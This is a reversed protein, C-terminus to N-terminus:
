YSNLRLVTLTIVLLIPVISGGSLINIANINM